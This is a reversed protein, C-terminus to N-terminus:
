RTMADPRRLCAWRGPREGLVSAEPAESDGGRSTYRGVHGNLAASYYDRFLREVFSLKRATERDAAASEGAVSEGAGEAEGGGDGKAPPDAVAVAALTHCPARAPAARPDTLPHTQPERIACPTAPCCECSCCCGCGRARYFYLEWVM